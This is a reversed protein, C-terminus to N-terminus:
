LGPLGEGGTIGGLLEEPKIGFRELLDRHQEPDVQDPLESQAEQAKGEGARERILTLVTEKDIQV